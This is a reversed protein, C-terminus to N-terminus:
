ACGTVAWMYVDDGDEILKAKMSAVSYKNAAFYAGACIGLYSLHGGRIENILYTRDDLSLRGYTGEFEEASGGPM